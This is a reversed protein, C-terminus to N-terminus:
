SVIGGFTWKILISAVIYEFEFNTCTRLKPPKWKFVKFCNSKQILHFPYEPVEFIIDDSSRFACAVTVFIDSLVDCDVQYM